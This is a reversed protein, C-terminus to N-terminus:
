NLTFTVTVSMIVQVPVGNLLTPTFRWQRVADTAAADLLPVSKLVKVERVSGDEAILAEIIVVGSIKAQQAIAPYSPAVHHVKQPPRVVGGARIVTPPAAPRPAPPPPAIGLGDGAPDGIPGVVVGPDSPVADFAVLPEPAISDPETLPAAAPNVVPSQAPHTTRPPPPQVEPVEASVMAFMTNQPPAPPETTAFLRVVMAAGIVLTHVVFSFVFTRTRM